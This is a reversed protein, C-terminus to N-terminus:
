NEKNQLEDLIKKYKEFQKQGYEYFIKMLYFGLGMSAVLGLKMLFANQTGNQKILLLLVLFIVAHLMFFMIGLIHMKLMKDMIPSELVVKVYAKIIFYVSFYVLIVGSLANVLNPSKIGLIQHLDLGIIMSIVSSLVLSVFVCLLAIVVFFAIKM